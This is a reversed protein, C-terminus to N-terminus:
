IRRSLMASKLVRLRSPPCCLCSMVQDRKVQACGEIKSRFIGLHPHEFRPEMVRRALSTVLGATAWPYLESM